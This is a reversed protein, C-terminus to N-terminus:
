NMINEVLEYTQSDAQPFAGSGSTFNTNYIMIKRIGGRWYNGEVSGSAQDYAAGVTMFQLTKPLSVNAGSRNTPSDLDTFGDSTNDAVRFPESGSPQQIKAFISRAQTSNNIFGGVMAPKTHDWNDGYTSAVSPMDPSLCGTNLNCSETVFSSAENIFEGAFKSKYTTEPVNYVENATYSYNNSGSGFHVLSGTAVFGSGSAPNGEMYTSDIYFQVAVTLSNDLNLLKGPTVFNDQSEAYSSSGNFFIYDQQSSESKVLNNATFRKGSIRDIWYEDGNTYDDAHLYVALNSGSLVSGTPVLITSATQEISGLSLFGGTAM